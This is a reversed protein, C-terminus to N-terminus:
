RRGVDSLPVAPDLLGPADTRVRDTVIRKLDDVVDHVNVTLAADVIGERAYFAVFEREALSGRITVDDRADAVGLYELSLDYQDSYFYPLRLYAEHSGVANRGATAGQNLANAWHEVRVHRGYHPHWANAVDGAAYVGPASHLHEDVVIGDRVHLGAAEALETCPEVGIGVVVVDAAETRGDSLVVKDVSRGGHLEAIGVGLRLAVGNDAHLSRFVTGVETGLVRQLPVPAPDVVCVDAGMARASSAVESGIWGAGVVVVRAGTGIAARLRAADDLTRLYHVGDLDAGPVDLRRPRAGTALVVSDYAISGGDALVARRGAVDLERVETATVLEVDNAAYFGEEHVHASEPEAKGRLVDKSLPPREYPRRTEAGVLVVRGTFGRERAAAAAKAGALGAGIVLLTSDM